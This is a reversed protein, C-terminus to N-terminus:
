FFQGQLGRFDRDVLDIFADVVTLLICTQISIRMYRKRVLLKKGPISGTDARAGGLNPLVRTRKTFPLGHIDADTGAADEEPM